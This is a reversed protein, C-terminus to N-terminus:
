HKYLDFNPDIFIIELVNNNRNGILPKKGNYRFSLLNNKDSYCPPISDKIESIPITESGLGHRYSNQVEQWTMASLTKLHKILQKLESIECDLGHKNEAFHEFSFVVKQANTSIAPNVVLKKHKNNFELNIQKPAEKWKKPM